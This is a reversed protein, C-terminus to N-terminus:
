TYKRRKRKRPKQPQNKLRSRTSASRGVLHKIVLAIAQDVTLQKLPMVAQLFFRLNAMSLAPLKDIQLEDALKSDPPHSEAWDLKTQAIFWLALADLVTHHMWARYKRAILEDWGGESKADQFTREVFYRESRWQALTSLPTQKPENSLASSLSGDSERRFFLTEQRVTGEETITWVPKSACDYCLRGRECPRIDIIQFEIEPLQAIARVEIPEVNNLVQWRTPPRGVTGKPQSPIGVIPPQLYVPLNCPIDALYPIKRVHLQARFEHSRGYFADCSFRSFPLGNRQARDIRQLGIEIKTQFQRDEPIHLRRHLKKHAEDFWIEPLFLEADVMTWVNAAYYGLAVGVQGMEIKGVNGIYQRAAGASQDGSRVDGSEDLTLMGGRLRRDQRIESQLQTYVAPASWPSDSMYHQLNQGDSDSSEMRRMINVYNRNNPLLLLGKLYILAYESTDHRMTTFSDHYRQWIGHLRHGLAKVSEGSLGWREASFVSSNTSYTEIERAHKREM